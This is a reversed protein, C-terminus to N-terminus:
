IFSPTFNAMFEKKKLEKRLLRDKRSASVFSGEHEPPRDGHAPPPQRAAEAQHKRQREEEQKQEQRMRAAREALVAKRDEQAKAKRESKSLPPAGAARAPLCSPLSAQGSASVKLLVEFRQKQEM